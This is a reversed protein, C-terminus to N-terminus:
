AVLTIWMCFKGDDLMGDSFMGDSFMGNSFTGDRFTWDSFMGIVISYAGTVLRVM